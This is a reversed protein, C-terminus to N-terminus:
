PFFHRFMIRAVFICVYVGLIMKNTVNLFFFFVSRMPYVDHRHSLKQQADFADNIRNQDNTCVIQIFYLRNKRNFVLGNKEMQITICNLGHWAMGLWASGVNGVNQQSNYISNNIKM